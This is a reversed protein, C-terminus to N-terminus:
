TKVVRPWSVMARFVSSDSSYVRIGREGVGEEGAGVVDGALDADGADEDDGRDDARTRQCQFEARAPASILAMRNPPMVKRHRMGL